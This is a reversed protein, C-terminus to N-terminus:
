HKTGELRLLREMENKVNVTISKVDGSLHVLGAKAGRPKSVQRCRVLSVKAKGGQSAKSNKVSLMAADMLTEHPVDPETFRIVVHSGPCGAAHM